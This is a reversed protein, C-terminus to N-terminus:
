FCWLNPKPSFVEQLMCGGFMNTHFVLVLTQGETSYGLQQCVVIAVVFSFRVKLLTDLSGVCWLPMLVAGAMMVCRGGCMM